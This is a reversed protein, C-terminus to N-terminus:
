PIEPSHPILFSFSALLTLTTRCIEVTIVPFLALFARAIFSASEMNIM